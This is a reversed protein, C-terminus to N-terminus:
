SVGPVLRLRFTLSNESKDQVQIIIQGNRPRGVALTWRWPIGDLWFQCTTLVFIGLVSAVVLITLLTSRVM